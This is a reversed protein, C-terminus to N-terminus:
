QAFVSTTGVTLPQNIKAPQTYFFFARMFHSAGSAATRVSILTTSFSRRAPGWPDLRCRSSALSETPLWIFRYRGVREVPKLRTTETCNHRRQGGWAVAIRRLM